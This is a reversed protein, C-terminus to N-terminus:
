IMVDNLVTEVVMGVSTEELSLAAEEVETAASSVLVGAEAFDLVIHM